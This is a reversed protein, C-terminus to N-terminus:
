NSYQVLLIITKKKNGPGNKPSSIELTQSQPLGCFLKVIFLGKITHLTLISFCIQRVYLFDSRKFHDTVCITEVVTMNVSEFALFIVTIFIFSLLTVLDSCPAM